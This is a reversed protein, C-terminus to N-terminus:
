VILNGTIANAIKRVPLHNTILICRFAKGCMMMASQRGDFDELFETHGSYGKLSNKLIPMTVLADIRNEKLLSLSKKLSSLSYDDGATIEPAIFEFDKNIKIGSEASLSTIINKDIVPILEFSETFSTDALIKLIIESGIGKLEGSTIGIRTKM